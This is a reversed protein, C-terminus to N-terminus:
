IVAILSSGLHNRELTEPSKESVVPQVQQKTCNVMNVGKLLSAIPWWLAVSIHNTATLIVWFKFAAVVEEVQEGLM